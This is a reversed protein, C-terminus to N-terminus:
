KLTQLVGFNLGWDSIYLKVHIQAAIFLSTVVTFQFPESICLYSSLGFNLACMISLDDFTSQTICHQICVSAYVVLTSHM